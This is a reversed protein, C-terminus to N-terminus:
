AAVAERFPDTAKAHSDDGLCFGGTLFGSGDVNRKISAVEFELRMPRQAYLAATSFCLMLACSHLVVSEYTTRDAMHLRLGLQECVATFLSPLKPDNEDVASMLEIDFEGTLGQIVSAVEFRVTPQPAPQQAASAVTLAFFAATILRMRRM